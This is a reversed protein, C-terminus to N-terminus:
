AFVGEPIEAGLSFRRSRRGLLTEVFSFSLMDHFGPPFSSEM